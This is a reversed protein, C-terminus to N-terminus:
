ELLSVSFVVCTYQRRINIQKYSIFEVIGEEYGSSSENEEKFCFGIEDGASAKELDKNYLNILKNTEFNVINVGFDIIIETVKLNKYYM